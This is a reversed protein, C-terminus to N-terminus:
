KKLLSIIIAIFSLILGAINLYFQNKTYKLEPKDRTEKNRLKIDKFHDKIKSDSSLLELSFSLSRNQEINVWASILQKGSQVMSKYCQILFEEIANIEEENLKINLEMQIGDIENFVDEVFKDIESRLLDDLSQIHAGSKFMGGDAMIEALNRSQKHILVSFNNVRTSIRDKIIIIVNERIIKKSLM